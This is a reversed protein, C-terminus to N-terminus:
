VGAEEEGRGGNVCEKCSSCTSCDAILPFQNVLVLSLKKSHVTGKTVIKKEKKRLSNGETEGVFGYPLGLGLSIEGSSSLIGKM